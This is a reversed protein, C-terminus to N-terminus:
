ERGALAAKVEKLLKARGSAGCAKFMYDLYDAYSKERMSEWKEAKPHPMAAFVARHTEMLGELEGKKKAALRDRVAKNHARVAMDVQSRVGEQKSCTAYVCDCGVKFKSGCTARIFYVNVIGQGCYDCSGGPQIPADRCAQYTMTGSGILKYPAVGLGAAEWKHKASPNPGPNTPSVVRRPSAGVVDVTIKCDGMDSQSSRYNPDAVFPVDLPAYLSM